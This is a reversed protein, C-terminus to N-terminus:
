QILIRSIGEIRGTDTNVYGKIYVFGHYSTDRLWYEVTSNGQSDSYTINFFRGISGGSDM